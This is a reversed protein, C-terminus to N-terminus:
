ACSLTEHMMFYAPMVMTLHARALCQLTRSTVFSRISVQRSCYYYFDFAAYRMEQAICCTSNGYYSIVTQRQDAM